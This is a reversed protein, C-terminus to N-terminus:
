WAAIDGWTGDTGTLVEVTASGRDLKPHHVQGVTQSAKLIFEVSLFLGSDIVLVDLSHTNLM